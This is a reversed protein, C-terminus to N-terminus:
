LCSRDLEFGQVLEASGYCLPARGAPLNDIVGIWAYASPLLGIQKM